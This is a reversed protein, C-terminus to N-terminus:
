WGAAEAGESVWVPAWALALLQITVDSAKPKITAQDLPESAADFSGDIRAVEAQLEEELGRFQAELAEVSEQARAVDGTEKGIRGVGRIATGMRSASTVSVRKSGLFAGLVATGVSLFASARQQSAQQSERETAQRARLLRGELTDVKSGYKKRLREVEANRQERFTLQLRARFDRESEGPEGSLKLAKHQLLILPQTDRVWRSFLKEWKSYSKPDSASSPVTAYGADDGGRPELEDPSLDSEEAEDWELALPGQGLPALRVVRRQEDIGRGSDHYGVDAIGLILPQYCLRAGDPGGRLLPLWVQKIAPDLAPPAASPAESSGRLSATESHPPSGPAPTLLRIQDRTLPGALYSMAWRTEFTISADEHVNHLLFVRKGLGALTQEMAARDFKVGACAGELGEMVRMKDRETQLRGIFWTGANSLAKYDLDVPNQTALVLGLGYARAQKLLTLFLAKTPPNAVPPLYGFVEDMYLIARLSGTGPQARMWAIVENLLQAVFFMREADSLHAISLVSVRPRGDPTYLLSGADLLEGERWAAFGPSALLGNLKMALGFRDKAPFFTELDMVGIQRLPPQQIAAILAGLDLGRGASWSHELLSSLLIHERSTLPDAEIGLLALLGTVTAQIRERYLDADDRLAQGPATFEKLLALPRGASSGPTYIAFDAAERLRHIRDGDQHWGALGQRWLAAQGVAYADPDQGKAAADQPNIWPRFDSPALDPFTLLINGLDGKPDVAIVPIRDIAAEELLGIGLGTKGSGTMGIIVAHTTLDKADYLVLEESAGSAPDHVRGLYFAGLKEYDIPM